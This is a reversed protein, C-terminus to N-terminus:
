LVGELPDFDDWGYRRLDVRGRDDMAVGEAALRKLQEGGLSSMGKANVVRHWPVPPSDSGHRGLAALAWGVQRPGCGDGVLRAIQGYTSVRGEPIRRVVDFVAENSFVLAGEEVFFWAGLERGSQLAIM